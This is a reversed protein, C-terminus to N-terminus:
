NTFIIYSNESHAAIGVIKIRPYKNRFHDLVLFIYTKSNLNKKNIAYAIEHAFEDWIYRDDESYNKRKAELHTSFDTISIKGSLEGVEDDGDSYTILLADCINM